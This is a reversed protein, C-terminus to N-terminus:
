NRLVKGGVIDQNVTGVAIILVCVALYGLRSLVLDRQCMYYMYVSYSTYAHKLMCAPVHVHLNHSCCSPFFPQVLNLALHVVIHHM